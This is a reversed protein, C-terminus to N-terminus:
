EQKEIEKNRIEFSKNWTVSVTPKMIAQALYLSGDNAAWSLASFEEM